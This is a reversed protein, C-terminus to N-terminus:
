RPLIPGSDGLARLRMQELAVRLNPNPSLAAARELNRQTADLDGRAEYAYALQTVPLSLTSAFMRSTSELRTPDGELLGGYRYTEWVLRDTRAVDLLSGALRSDDLRRDTSDPLTTQLRFVLGEQVVYPDLGLFERGATVSWAIPRRGINQQVIRISPFDNTMLVSGAPLTRSLPGFRVTIASGLRQPIAAAIEADTM